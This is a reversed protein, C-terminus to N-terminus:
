ASRGGSPYRLRGLIGAVSPLKGISAEIRGRLRGVAGIDALQRDLFALTAEAGPSDDGIWVALTAAYVAALTARKTYFSFDTAGDGVGYWVADVTRYLLRAALPGNHPLGLLMVARRVAERHPAAQDLRIRIAERVREHTRLASQDLAELAELMHRDAEAAHFALLDTGGRPFANEALAPDVGAAEAAKRLTAATWGDFGAIPLAADLVRRKLGDAIAQAENEDM